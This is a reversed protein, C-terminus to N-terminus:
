IQEDQQAFQLIEHYLSQWDVMLVNEVHADVLWAGGEQKLRAVNNIYGSVAEGNKLKEYVFPAVPVFDYAETMAFCQTM